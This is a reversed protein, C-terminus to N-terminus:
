LPPGLQKKIALSFIISYYILHKCNNVGRNDASVHFSSASMSRLSKRHGKKTNVSVKITAGDVPCFIWVSTLTFPWIYSSKRKVGRVLPNRFSGVLYYAIHTWIVYTYVNTRKKQAEFSFAIKNREFLFAMRYIFHEKRWTNKEYYAQLRKKHAWIPCYNQWFGLNKKHVIGSGFIM